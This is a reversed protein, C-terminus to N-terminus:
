WLMAGGIGVEVAAGGGGLVVLGRGGGGIVVAAGGKDGVADDEGMGANIEAPETTVEPWKGRTRSSSCNRDKYQV